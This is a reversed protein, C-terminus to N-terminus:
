GSRGNCLSKLKKHFEKIEDDKLNEINDRYYQLNKIKKNLAINQSYLILLLNNIDILLDMERKLYKKKCYAKHAYFNSKDLSRYTCYSCHYVQTLPQLSQRWHKKGKLHRKYLYRFNTQFHCDMCFFKDTVKFEM